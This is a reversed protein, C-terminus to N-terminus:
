GGSGGAPQPAGILAYFAAKAARKRPGASLDTFGGPDDFFARLVARTVEEAFEAKDTTPLGSPRRYGLAVLDAETFEHIGGCACRWADGMAGPPPSCTPQRPKETM